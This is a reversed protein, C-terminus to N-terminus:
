TRDGAVESLQISRNGFAIRDLVRDYVPTHSLLRMARPRVVSAIRNRSLMGKSQLRQMRLVKAIDPRRGTEFRGLTARSVDGDRVAQVLIPHVLVADQVALNIGQAGIPSHSHASDGILVLGDAAWSDATASFVDLLSMDSLRRVQDHFRAAYREPLDTAMRDKVAALGQGALARYSRHPLTWGLQIRDPVSSYLLVPAGDGRYVQVECLPDGDDPLRLWLVDYDFVDLRTTGIGALRRVKSFRGDAGVVCRAEVVPRAAHDTHVGRVVGGDRLLETVKAGEVYDFNEHRRCQRLLEELVNRQPISLLYNYPAPLRRYDIDMLIRRRDRVRFVSHERAGRERAGALVGLGDLLSLAGPQLIEGRYQRDFSRAREVITVRIGSRALLLALTLGAPGGGVVCVDAAPGGTVHM